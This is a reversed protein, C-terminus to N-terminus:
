ASAHMRTAYSSCLFPIRGTRQCVPWAHRIARSTMHRLELPCCTMEHWLFHTKGTVGVDKEAQLAPTCTSKPHQLVHIRAAPSCAPMHEKQNCMHEQRVPAKPEQKEEAGEALSLIRGRRLIIVCRRSPRNKPLEQYTAKRKAKGKPTKSVGKPCRQIGKPEGQIGEPPRQTGQPQEKSGKPIGQTGRPEGASGQPERHGDRQPGSKGEPIWKALKPAGTSEWQM